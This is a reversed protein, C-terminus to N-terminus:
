RLSTSKYYKHSTSIRHLPAGALAALTVDDEDDDDLHHFM